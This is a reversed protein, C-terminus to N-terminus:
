AFNRGMFERFSQGDRDARWMLKKLRNRANEGIRRNTEVGMLEKLRMRIEAECISVDTPSLTDHTEKDFPMYTVFPEFLEQMRCRWVLRRPLIIPCGAAMAEYLAYGPADNSKLHVYALTRNLMLKVSDHQVLGDPSGRGFVRVGLKRVPEVLSQYGWGNVNHILCIPVDNPTESRSYEDFRAFPPWMPYTKTLWPKLNDSWDDTKYWQNPTLVPCPPNVEDGCDECKPCQIRFQTATKQKKKCEECQRVIHEPQGGNIRYWLVKGKLNPWRQILKNYTQHAKVDVYLDCDEMSQGTQYAHKKLRGQPLPFHPAYGMTQQLQENSLVLGGLKALEARTGADAVFCEYGASRLMLVLSELPGTDACNIVATKM